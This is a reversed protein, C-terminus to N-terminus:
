TDCNLTVRSACKSWRCNHQQPKPSATQPKCNATQPKHNATQPKNNKTQPNDDGADALIAREAAQFSAQL